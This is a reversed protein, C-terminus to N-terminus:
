TLEVNRSTFQEKKLWWQCIGKIQIEDMHGVSCGWSHAPGVKGVDLTRYGVEVMSQLPLVTGTVIRVAVVNPTM